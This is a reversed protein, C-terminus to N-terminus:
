RATRNVSAGMKKLALTFADALTSKTVVEALDVGLHVITQAIQPRIGSIICDAGMLRAAAVTKLLHQSVLTDVTPVGTIDIIAVEAGTDVIAKLLNEMVVQTRASDLTGIIPLALIGDWLKVVPTSLELMDEQQRLIVDERSKQYAVTTFLGLKDLLETVSWVEAAFVSPENLLEEQLLAFLPRKLSFVFTAVEVPTCGQKARTRSVSALMDRVPQWEAADIGTVNGSRTAATMLRLLEACQERVELQGILDSRLRGPKLLEQTWDLVLKQEHKELLEPFRSIGSQKM